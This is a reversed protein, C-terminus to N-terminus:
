TRLKAVSSFSRDSYGPPVDAACLPAQTGNCYRTATVLALPAGEETFLMHPRERTGMVTAQVVGNRTHWLTTNYPAPTDATCMGHGGAGDVCYWPDRGDVSFSHAGDQHPGHNKSTEGTNHRTNKQTKHNHKHNHNHIHNRINHNRTNHNNHINHITTTPPPSMRYTQM